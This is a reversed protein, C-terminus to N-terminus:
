VSTVGVGVAHWAELKKSNKNVNPPSHCLKGKVHDWVRPFHQHIDCICSPVMQWGAQSRIIFNAHDDSADEDWQMRRRKLAPRKWSTHTLWVDLQTRSVLSPEWSPGTPPSVPPSILPHTPSPIYHPQLHNVVVPRCLVSPELKSLKKKLLTELSIYNQGLYLLWDACVQLLPIKPWICKAM